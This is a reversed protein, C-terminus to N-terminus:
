RGVASVREEGPAMVLGHLGHVMLRDAECAHLLQGQIGPPPRGHFESAHEVWPGNELLGRQLRQEGGQAIDVLGGCQELAM